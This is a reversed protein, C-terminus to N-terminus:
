FFLWNTKPSVQKAKEKLSKVTVSIGIVHVTADRDAIRTILALSARVPQLANLSVRILASKKEEDYNILSLNTSSAGYEGYLRTIASWVADTFERQSLAADTDIQLLLYRRKSWKL